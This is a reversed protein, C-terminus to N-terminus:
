LRKGYLKEQEDPIINKFTKGFHVAAANFMAAAEEEIEFVGLYYQKGNVQIQTQQMNKNTKRLM